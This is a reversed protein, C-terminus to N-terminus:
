HPKANSQKTATIVSRGSREAQQMPKATMDSGDRRMSLMLAEVLDDVQVRVKGDFDDRLPLLQTEMLNSLIGQSKSVERILWANTAAPYIDLAVFGEGKSALTIAKGLQAHERKILEWLVRKEQKSGVM